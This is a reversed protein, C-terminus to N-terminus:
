LPELVGSGRLMVVFPWRATAEGATSCQLSADTLLDVHKTKLMYVGKSVFFTLCTSHM